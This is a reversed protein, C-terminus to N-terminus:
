AMCHGLDLHALYPTTASWTGYSVESDYIVVASRAECSPEIMSHGFFRLMWFPRAAAMAM